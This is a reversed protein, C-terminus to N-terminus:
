KQMEMDKGFEKKEDVDKAIVNRASTIKEDISIGIQEELEEGLEEKMVMRFKEESIGARGCVYDIFDYNDIDCCEWRGTDNLSLILNHVVKSYADSLFEKKSLGKEGVFAEFEEALEEKMVTLYMEEDIEAKECVFSIFSESDIDYSEWEKADNLALILDHVANSYEDIEYQGKEIDALVLQIEKQVYPDTKGNEILYEVEKTDVHIKAIVQGEEDGRSTKWGDVYVCREEEDFFDTRIEAWKSKDAM